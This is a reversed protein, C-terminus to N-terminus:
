KEHQKRENKTRNLLLTHGKLDNSQKRKGTCFYVLFM